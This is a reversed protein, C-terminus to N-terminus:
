STSWLSWRKTKSVRVRTEQKPIVLEQYQKDRLTVKILGDVDDPTHSAQFNNKSKVKM